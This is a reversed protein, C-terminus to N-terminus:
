LIIIKSTWRNDYTKIMIRTRGKKLKKDFIHSIKGEKLKLVIWKGGSIYCQVKKISPDLTVEIKHLVRTDKNLDIREWIAPLYKINLKAKLHVKGTLAIRDLDYIDSKNSIAGSNQNFILHFGFSKIGEKVATNFEGYPYVYSTPTFGLRKKFIALAKKTDIQVQEKTMHTMHAHAFSHLGIDGYKLSEKLQKWTMFDGFRRQTAEIYLYIIFPYHYRKFLPLGHTYFSKYSDDITFLVWNNPIPKGKRLKNEIEKYSAVYYNYKKLYEFHKILDQSSVSTSLHKTDDFRHLVFVHGQSTPAKLDIKKASAFGNTLSLGLCVIFGIFPRM